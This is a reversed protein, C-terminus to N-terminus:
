NQIPYNTQLLNRRLKLQETKNNNKEDEILSIGSTNSNYTINDTDNSFRVNNPTKM